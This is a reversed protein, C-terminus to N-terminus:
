QVSLIAATDKETFRKPRGNYLISPEPNMISDLESRHQMGITHGTEHAFALQAEVSNDIIYSDIYLAGYSGYAGGAAGIHRISELSYGANIVYMFALSTYRNGDYITLENNELCIKGVDDLFLTLRTYEAFPRPMSYIIPWSTPALTVGIDRQFYPNVSEVLNFFGRQINGSWAEELGAEQDPFSLLVLRSETNAVSIEPNLPLHPRRAVEASAAADGFDPLTALAVGLSAGGLYQLFQRRGPLRPWTTRDLECSYM